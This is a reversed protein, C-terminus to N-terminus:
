VESEEGAERAIHAQHTAREVVREAHRVRRGKDLTGM